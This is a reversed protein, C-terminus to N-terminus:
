PTGALQDIEPGGPNYMQDTMSVPMILMRRQATLRRRPHSILLDFGAGM